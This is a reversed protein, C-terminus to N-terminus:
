ARASALWPCRSCPACGRRSTAIGSRVSRCRCISTPPWSPARQRGPAARDASAHATARHVASLLQRPPPAPAVVCSAGAVPPAPAGLAPAPAVQIRRCRPKRDRAGGARGGLAIECSDVASRGAVPCQVARLVHTRRGARGARRRRHALRRHRRVRPSRPRLGPTPVRRAGDALDACQHDLRQVVRHGPVVAPARRARHCAGAAVARVRDGSSGTARVPHRRRLGM